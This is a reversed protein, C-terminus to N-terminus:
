EPPGDPKGAYNALFESPTLVECGKSLAAPFHRTNGTILPVGASLATELFCADGAHPLGSVSVSCAIRDTERCLFDLLDERAEPPLYRDFRERLLVDAYEALIRDDAVLELVGSRLLDVIRGPAGFPNLIGSVLVNTDLVVRM